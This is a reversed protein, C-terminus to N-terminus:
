TGSMMDVDRVGSMRVPTDKLTDSMEDLVTDLPIHARQHMSRNHSYRINAGDHLIRTGQVTNKHSVESQTAQIHASVSHACAAVRGTPVAQAGLEVLAGAARFVRGHKRSDGRCHADTRLM